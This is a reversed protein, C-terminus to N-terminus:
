PHADGQELFPVPFDQSHIVEATSGFVESLMVTVTELMAQGAIPELLDALGPVGLDFSAEFQVVSGEVVSSVSWHGELHLLDGEILEFDIRRIQYDLHDREQWKLTGAAFAVEWSSKRDFASSCELSVAHVVKSYKPFSAFDSLLDFVKTPEVGPVRLVVHVQRM